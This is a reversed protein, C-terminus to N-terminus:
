GKRETKIKFIHNIAEALAPFIEPKGNVIVIHKGKESKFTM